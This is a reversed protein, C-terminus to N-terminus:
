NRALDSAIGQEELKRIEDCLVRSARGSNSALRMVPLWLWPRVAAFWAFSRERFRGEADVFRDTPPFEFDFEDSIVKLASFGVGRVEAARAVAAAEMDVAQAQYSERLKTKQAPTAVVPYSVLVGDGGAIQVSSGDGANVVREPRIVEGVKRRPDLAGAYGASYVMGPGYLVIVAEAARRAADIGIGGCVLVVEHNEFFRFRRGDHERESKRWHKVLPRVERELAVVVAVKSMDTLGSGIWRGASRM